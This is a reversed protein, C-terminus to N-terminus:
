VLARQDFWLLVCTLLGGGSGLHVYSSIYVAGLYGGNGGVCSACRRLVAEARLVTVFKCPVPGTCLCAVQAQRDGKDAAQLRSPSCRIQGLWSDAQRTRLCTLRRLNM